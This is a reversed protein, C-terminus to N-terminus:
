VEEGLARARELRSADDDPLYFAAILLAPATFFLSLMAWLMGQRLSEGRELGSAAIVDSIHGIVYPGMAVGLLSIVILYFASSVGRMRPMVLGNAISPGIGYWSSSTLLFLAIYTYAETTTEALLMLVASGVSLVLAGIIVYLRARPTFRELFDALVGGLMTGTFGFVVTLLGIVEGAESASIGHVRILFPVIWAAVGTTVFVFGALGFNSFLLSRCHIIMAFLAPDRLALTQAWCTVCWAGVGLATWQAVSGTLAILLTVLLTIIGAIILNLRVARYGGELRRLIPLSLLPVVSQMETWAAQFPKPHPATVVLGDSQGRVPEALSLLWLALLPGTAAVAFFAVQWGKLGFPALGVEPYANNWGDLIFGGLFIGLGMGIPVGAGFVSMATSRLRAPFYDAIMSLAAPAAGAEGVGVAIRCFAFSVFNRASGTLFIMLSWSAVCLGLLRKRVWVDALRGLPISFIAYFVSIATGYVFGIDADSLNLDIKIDEALVTLIQRDMLILVNVLFLVFLAYISYTMKVAPVDAKRIASDSDPPFASTAITSDLDYDAVELPDPIDSNM